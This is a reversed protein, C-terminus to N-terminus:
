LAETDSILSGSVNRHWIDFPTVTKIHWVGFAALVDKHCIDFAELVNTHRFAVRWLILICTLTYVSNNDSSRPIGTHWLTASINWDCASLSYRKSQILVNNLFALTTILDRTKYWFKYFHDSICPCHTNGCPTQPMRNRLFTSCDVRM